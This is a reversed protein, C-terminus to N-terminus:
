SSLGKLFLVNKEPILEHPLRDIKVRKLGTTRKMYFGTMQKARCFLHRTEIHSAVNMNIVEVEKFFDFRAFEVIVKLRNKWFFYM